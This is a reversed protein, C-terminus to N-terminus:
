KVRLPNMAPMQFSDGLSNAGCNEGGISFSKVSHDDWVNLSTLSHLGSWWYTEFDVVSYM